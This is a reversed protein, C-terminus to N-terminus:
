NLSIWSITTRKKNATLKFQLFEEELLHFQEQKQHIEERYHLLTVPLTPSSSSYPDPGTFGTMEFSAKPPDHPDCMEENFHPVRENLCPICNKEDIAVEVKL